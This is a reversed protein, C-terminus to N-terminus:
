IKLVFSQWNDITLQELKVAQSLDFNGIRTRKLVTLIAGVQLDQGLDHALSRIYTGPGCTIELELKPWDFNLIEITKIEVISPKLDVEKGQRALKYAPVGKIKKASFAPPMQEIEGIFSKLGKEIVGRELRDVSLELREVKGETDYTDSVMGFEIEAEYVKEQAKFEDIRKTAERGIAVILLGTAMPDLTGAHGIKKIKCISRLKAVIDFSTWGKPKDILLFGSQKMAEDM